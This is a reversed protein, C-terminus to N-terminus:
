PTIVIVGYIKLNVDSIDYGLRPSEVPLVRGSALLARSLSFDALDKWISAVIPPIM